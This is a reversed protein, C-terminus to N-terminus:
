DFNLLLLSLDGTNVNGDHDLDYPNSAPPSQYGTNEFWISVNQPSELLLDLDGDADVDRWGGQTGGFAFPNLLSSIQPAIEHIAAGLQEDLVLVSVLERQFQGDAHVLNELYIIGQQGWANWISEGEADTTFSEAFGDADIDASRLSQCSIRDAERLQCKNIRQPSRSLWTAMGPVCESTAQSRPPRSADEAQNTHSQAYAEGGEHQTAILATAVMGVSLAVLGAGTSIQKMDHVGVKRGSGPKHLM